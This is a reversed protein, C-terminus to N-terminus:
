ALSILSCIDGCDALLLTLHKELALEGGVLARLKLVDATCTLVYRFEKEEEFPVRPKQSFSYSHPPLLGPTTELSEDKDYAVPAIVCRGSALPKKQWAAEIRKLLETPDSIRVIYPGFHEALVRRDTEPHATSLIYYSNMSSRDCYVPNQMKWVVRVIGETEDKRLGEAARYGALLGVRVSGGIFARAYGEKEFARLLVNPQPTRPPRQLDDLNTALSHVRIAVGDGKM